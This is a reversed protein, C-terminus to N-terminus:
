LHSTMIVDDAAIFIYNRCQWFKGNRLYIWQLKQKLRCTVWPSIFSFTLPHKKESCLTYQWIGTSRTGEEDLSQRVNQSEDPVFCELRLRVQQLQLQLSQTVLEAAGLCQKLDDLQWVVWHWRVWHDTSVWFVCVRLEDSQWWACMMLVWSQGLRWLREDQLDWWSYENCCSVICSRLKNTGITTIIYNLPFSVSKYIVCFLLCWYHCLATDCMKLLTTWTWTKKLIKFFTLPHFECTTHHPCEWRSLTQM